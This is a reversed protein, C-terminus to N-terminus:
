RFHAPGDPLAVREAATRLGGERRLLPLRHQSRQARRQRALLGVEVALQGAGQARQFIVVRAREALHGIQEGGRVPGDLLRM